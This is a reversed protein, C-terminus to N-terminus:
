GDASVLYQAISYETTVLRKKRIVFVIEFYYTSFSTITTYSGILILYVM